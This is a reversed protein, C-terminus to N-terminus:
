NNEVVHLSVIRTEKETLGRFLHIADVPPFTSTKGEGVGDLLTQLHAFAKEFNAKSVGGIVRTPRDNEDLISVSAHWKPPQQTADVTLLTSLRLGGIQVDRHYKGVRTLDFANVLPNELAFKQRSNM